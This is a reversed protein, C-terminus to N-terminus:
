SITAGKAVAGIGLYEQAVPHLRYVNLLRHDMRLIPLPGLMSFESCSSNRTCMDSPCTCVPCHLLLNQLAPTLLFPIMSYFDLLLSLTGLASALQSLSGPTSVQFQQYGMHTLMYLLNQLHFCYQFAHSNLYLFIHHCIFSLAPCPSYKIMPVYYCVCKFKIHGYNFNLTPSNNMQM